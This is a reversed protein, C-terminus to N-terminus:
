NEEDKFKESITKYIEQFKEGFGEQEEEHIPELVIKKGDTTLKLKTGREINLLQLIPKDITIGLSNGCKTLKKIIM